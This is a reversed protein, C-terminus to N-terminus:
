APQIDDRGVTVACPFPESFEVVYHEGDRYAHVVTGRGGEPLVRGKREVLSAWPGPSRKTAVIRGTRTDIKVWRGTIPHRLQVRDLIM